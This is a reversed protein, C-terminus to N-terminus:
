NIPSKNPGKQSRREGGGSGERTEREWKKKTEAEEEVAREGVAEWKGEEQWM